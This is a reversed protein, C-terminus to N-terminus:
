GAPGNTRGRMLPRRASREPRDMEAPVRKQAAIPRTADAWAHRALLPLGAAEYWRSEEIFARHARTPDRRHEFGWARAHARKPVGEILRDDTGSGAVGRPAPQRLDSPFTVHSFTMPRDTLAPVPVLLTRPVARLFESARWSPPFPLDSNWPLHLLVRPDRHWQVLHETMGSTWVPAAVDARSRSARVLLQALASTEVRPVDGPVFLLPGGGADARAAAMAAAPGSGWRSPQDLIFQVSPPLRPAIESARSSTSTAILIKSALPTVQDVVRRLVPRGDLEALLKDGGFRRSSGGALVVVPLLDPM